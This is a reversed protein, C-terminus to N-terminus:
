TPPLMYRYRHRQMPWKGLRGAKNSLLVWHVRFATYLQEVAGREAAGGGLHEWWHKRTEPGRACTLGPSGVSHLKGM